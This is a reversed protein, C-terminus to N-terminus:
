ELLDVPAKTQKIWANNRAHLPINILDAPLLVLGNVKTNKTTRILAIPEGIHQKNNQPNLPTEKESKIRTINM